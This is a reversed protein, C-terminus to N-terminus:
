EVVIIGTMISAHASCHYPYVGAENFTVSYTDGIKLGRSNQEPFYTHAPHSDTNVFHEIDEQNTWTVTAGKKIRIKGPKFSIELMDINVNNQGTLDTYSEREARKIAFQFKGDHCSGDPWCADYYVTYIGDPSKPDMTRRMTLRGEDIITDGTGYEVDDKLISIKSPPVLDFNFDIVANIPIGALVAEHEPTNSEYHASKKPIEFSPESDAEPITTSTTTPRPTQITTSTTTTSPPPECPDRIYMVQHWEGDVCNENLYTTVGDPCTNHKTEGDICAITMTPPTTFPALTPTPRPTEPFHPAPTEPEVTTPVESYSLCASSLILVILFGGGIFWRM